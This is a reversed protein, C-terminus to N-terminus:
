LRAGIADSPKVHASPVGMTIRVGVVLPLSLM